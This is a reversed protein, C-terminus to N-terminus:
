PRAEAAIRTSCSMRMITVTGAIRRALRARLPQMADV